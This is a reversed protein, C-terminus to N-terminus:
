EPYLELRYVIIGAQIYSNVIETIENLDSISEESASRFGTINDNHWVILIWKKPNTKM